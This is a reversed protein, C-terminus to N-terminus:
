KGGKKTKVIIVGNPAFYENQAKEGKVVDIQAIENPPLNKLAEQNQIKGDIIIMPDKNGEDFGRITVKKKSTILLVGNSAQYEKVAEEGKVVKISEIKDQDLLEIIAYDYKKGDIYVDPPPGDDKLRIKIQEPKVDESKENQSWVTTVTLVILLLTTNFNKM